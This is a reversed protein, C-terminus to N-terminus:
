KRSDANKGAVLAETERRVLDMMLWDTNDARPVTTILRHAEALWQRAVQAKGLQHAAMASFFLDTAQCWVVWDANGAKRMGPVSKAFWDLASAYNGRRYEAIGKAHQIFGLLWDPAAKSAIAGDIHAIAFDAFRGAQERVEADQAPGAILCMTSTREAIKVDTTQQFDRVTRRCLAQHKETEGAGALLLALRYAAEHWYETGPALLDLARSFEAAAPKWSGLLILMEGRQKLAQGEEQNRRSVEAEIAARWVNVTQDLSCSAVAAGDPSIAVSMVPGGHGTFTSRLDGTRSEWLRLTGDESGSVLTRGDQSFALSTIAGAHGRLRQTVEGTNVAVIRVDNNWNGVALNESDPSFALCTDPGLYPLIFSLAPQAGTLNWLATMYIHQSALWKGDPSLALATVMPLITTPQQGLDVTTRKGNAMDLLVIVPAADGEQQEWAIARGAAAVAILQTPCLWNIGLRHPVTCESRLNGAALDWLRLKQDSQSWTALFAGDASFALETAKEAKDWPAPQGLRAFPWQQITGNKGHMFLTRGDSAFAITSSRSIAVSVTEFPRCRSLEWAKLQGDEGSSWLREGDGAFAVATVTKSHGKITARLQRAQVDWIHVANSKATGAALRRGDPSLAVCVVPGSAEFGPVQKWTKTDWLLVRHDASATAYLRGDPGYAVSTIEAAYPTQRPREPMTVLDTKIGDKSAWGSVRALKGGRLAAMVTAGHPAFALSTVIGQAPIAALSKWADTDWLVIEGSDDAAALLPRSPSVALAILQRGKPRATLSPLPTWTRIEWRRLLNDPGAAILLSGDRSFAVQPCWYAEWHFESWSQRGQRLKLTQEVFWAEYRPLNIRRVLKRTANDCIFIGNTLDSAAVTKGDPSVAICAFPAKGTSDISGIDLRAARWWYYWEFSRVDSDGARPRHSDLSEKLRDINGDDWLQRALNMDSLYLQRRLQEKAAETESRRQEAKGRAADADRAADLAKQRAASADRAADLAEQRAASADHAADLAKQRAAREDSALSQYYGAALLSLISGAMLLVAVTTTLAAVVQNRRCWRALREVASVQRARIPEDDLFRQLDAALEGASQYRRSPEREIAKHIITRFDRPVEPNLKGLPAPEEHTVQKILKHRDKEGFAPRLTLMEYLTIGLSYVDSCPDAQGQFREPAMFRVTGVIDGPSTLEESGEAKALGFDTIWVIGWTDVLLNSPKIDRHLIGQKHAYALAEAVQVGVQAVTRCYQWKTQSALQSNGDTNNKDAGSDSSSRDFISTLRSAPPEALAVDNVVAEEVAPVAQFRGTLLGQAISVSLDRAAEKGEAVGSKRSRLRRVEELVLDLGLGQIFQMAYYHIGESEGVGFVPVINTHHLQAAARAERRFRELHTPDMLHHFPLIKLAVHRGLSEQVAEYVVGMGGRGVERLIRYDGLQEPLAGCDGARPEVSGSAPGAMSGFKEMVVLAPFLERIQEALEPYKDAYESLSPHEGQRYRAAFEEALEEVPDRASSQNSM